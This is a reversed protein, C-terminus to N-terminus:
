LSFKKSILGVMAILFADANHHDELYLSTRYKNNGIYLREFLIKAIKTNQEKREDYDNSLRGIKNKIKRFLEENNKSLYNMFSVRWNIAVGYHELKLMELATIIRGFAFGFSFSSKSGFKKNPHIKEIFVIIRNENEVEKKFIKVLNEITETLKLGKIQYFKLENIRVNDIQFKNAKYFSEIDNQFKIACISGQLGVDISIVKKM